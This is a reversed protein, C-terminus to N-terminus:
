KLNMRYGRRPVTVIADSHYQALRRRLRKVLEDIADNTIGGHAEPWVAMAIEDRTCVQGPKNLLLNLLRLQNPALPPMVLQGHVYVEGTAENVVVGRARMTLRNTATEDHFVLALNASALSIRDQNALIWGVGPSVLINNVWTGNRSKLDELMFRGTGTEEIM